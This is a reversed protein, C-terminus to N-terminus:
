KCGPIWELCGTEDFQKYAADPEVWPPQQIGYTQVYNLFEAEADFGTEIKKNPIIVFWYLVKEGANTDVEQTYNTYAMIVGNKIAIKNIDHIDLYYYVEKESPSVHLTISWGLKQNIELKQDLKLMEYPKILPIRMADWGPDNYFPDKNVRSYRAWNTFICLLLLAIIIAILKYRKM